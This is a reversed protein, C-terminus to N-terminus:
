TPPSAPRAGGTRVDITMGDGEAPSEVRVEPVDPGGGDRRRSPRLWLAPVAALACVIAAALFLDHFTAVTAAQVAEAYEAQRQALAAAAEGPRGLPLPLGRVLDEFRGLGYSTLASLGVTMGLMRTVVVLAAAVGGSKPGAWEIAVAALPALLLGFGLGALALDRTMTADAVGAPWRAMLLFGGACAALGGLSVTRPGIWRTGLGGLVAGVPIPLTLRLLLLGGGTADRGLVTAAWLPVDVLAVILAAGVLLSTAMSASFPAWRFLTLEVLPTGARREVLVFGIGVVVASALLVPRWAAAERALGLTLSGLGVALLAAGLWDFREGTRSVARPSRVGGPALLLAAIGIGLPANVYFVWRWDASAVFLAGYLPGLVGGAEALAAVVGLAVNRRGEDALDGALALAIPLLAGGGVAQLARAAILWELGTAMGCLMSGAVFVTMCALFVRVRDHLDALRGVVPLAVTYGLLYGTVIWAADDLRTFPIGLERVIAPLLTAVVTQDLAGLFV